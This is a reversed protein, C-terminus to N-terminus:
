KAEAFRINQSHCLGTPGFVIYGHNQNDKDPLSYLYKGGVLLPHKDTVVKPDLIYESGLGFLDAALYSEGTNKDVQVIVKLKGSFDVLRPDQENAKIYGRTANGNGFIELFKYVDGQPGFSNSWYLSVVERLVKKKIAEIEKTVKEINYSPTKAEILKSLRDELNSLRRDNESFIEKLHALKKAPNLQSNDGQAFMDGVGNGLKALSITLKVPENGKRFKPGEKEGTEELADSFIYGPAQQKVASEYLARNVLKSISENKTEVSLGAENITDRVHNLVSTDLRGQPLLQPRELYTREVPIFQENQDKEITIASFRGYGEPASELDPVWGDPGWVQAYKLYGEVRTIRSVRGGGLSETLKNRVYPSDKTQGAGPTLGVNKDVNKKRVGSGSLAGTAPLRILALLLMTVFQLYSLRREM